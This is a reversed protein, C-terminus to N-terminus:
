RKAHGYAHGAATHEAAEVAEAAEREAQRAARAAEREAQRVARAAEREAQRVARAAEREAERAPRDDTKTADKTDSSEVVTTQEGSSGATETTQETADATQEEAPAPGGAAVIAALPQTSLEAPISVPAEEVVVEVAPAAPRHEVPAAIPKGPQVLDDLGFGRGVSLSMLVACLVAVLAFGVLPRKQDVGVPDGEWMCVLRWDRRAM